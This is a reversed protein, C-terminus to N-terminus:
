VVVDLIQAGPKGAGAKGILRRVPGPSIAGIQIIQAVEDGIPPLL